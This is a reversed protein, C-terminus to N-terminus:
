PSAAPNYAPDFSQQLVTKLEQMVEEVNETSNPLPIYASKQDVIRVPIRGQNSKSLALIHNKDRYGLVAFNNELRISDVQWRQSLIQLEKLILLQRAPH